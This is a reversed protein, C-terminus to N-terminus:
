AKARKAAVLGINQSLTEIRNSLDELESKAPIGLRRLVLNLSKELASELKKIQTDFSLADSEAPSLKSKKTAERKLRTELKEGEKVLEGFLKSSEQELKVVAGISAHWILLSFKRVEESAEKAKLSIENLFTNDLTKDGM